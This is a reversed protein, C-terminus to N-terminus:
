PQDHIGVVYCDVGGDPETSLGGGAKDCSAKLDKICRHDGGPCTDKVVGQRAKFGKARSYPSRGNRRAFRKARKYRKAGVLEYLKEFSNVEVVPSVNGAGSPLAFASGAGFGLFLVTLLFTRIM